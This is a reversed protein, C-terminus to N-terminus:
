TRYLIKASIDYNTFFDLIIKEMNRFCIDEMRVVRYSLGAKKPRSM